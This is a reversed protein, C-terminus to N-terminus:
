PNLAVHTVGAVKVSLNGIQGNKQAFNAQTDGWILNFGFGGRPAGTGVNPSPYVGPDGVIINDGLQSLTVRSGNLTLYQAADRGGTGAAFLWNFNSTSPGYEFIKWEQRTAFNTGQYNNESAIVAYNGNGDTVWINLYPVIGSNGFILSWNVTEITNIKIGDFFKTGYGVKQGGRPTGYTFGDGGANESLVIDSDWPPSIRNVTSNSNRIYYATFDPGCGEDIVGNCNNDKGDGCIEAAGPYVTADNDDCDNMSGACAGTATFGDGDADLIYDGHALHASLASVSIELVNFKGAKGTAHCISVKGSLADSENAKSIKGMQSVSLLETEAKQCGSLGLLIMFCLYFLKKM